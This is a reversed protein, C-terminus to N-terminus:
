FGDRRLAHASSQARYRSIWATLNSIQNLMADAFAARTSLPLPEASLGQEELEPHAAVLASEAAHLAADLAYLIALEPTETLESPNPPANM